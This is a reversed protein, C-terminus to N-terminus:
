LQNKNNIDSQAEVISRWGGKPVIMEFRVGEGPVGSERIVINTLGLIESILFLGMGTNKGHGQKFILKKEEEAVGVGNDTYIIILEEGGQELSITIATVREGHRKSNEVLNYLVKELMPDVYIEVPEGQVSLDIGTLVSQISRRNMVDRIQQWTPKKYGLEQYERTFEILHQIDKGAIAMNHLQKLAKEDSITEILMESYATIVMVRNLIDHRTVSSLIALKTQATHIANYARELDRESEKRKTIDYVNIIVGIINHSMDYIPNFISSIWITKESSQAPLEFDPAEITQGSLGQILFQDSQDKLLHPFVDYISKNLLNAYVKGFMREMEPNWFLIHFDPDLVTIGVQASNVIEKVFQESEILQNQYAVLDQNSARLEDSISLLEENKEHLEDNVNELADRTQKLEQWSRANRIALGLFRTFSLTLNLYERIRDPVSVGYVGLIGVSEQLYSIPVCFGAGEPSITYEKGIVSLFLDENMWEESDPPVCIMEGPRDPKISLYGVFHPAFLSQCTMLIRSIVEKEESVQAIDSLLTMVAMQRATTELASAVEKKCTGQIRSCLANSVEAKVIGFLHSIGVPITRVPLGSFLEFSKIREVTIHVLGTDLIVIEKLGSSYYSTPNSPNFGMETVYREWYALWGPLIVYAGRSVLSEVFEAPAILALCTNPGAHSIGPPLFGRRSLEADGFFLSTQGSYIHENLFTTIKDFHHSGSTCYHPYTCINVNQGPIEAIVRVIEEKFTECIYVTLDNESVESLSRIGGMSEFLM